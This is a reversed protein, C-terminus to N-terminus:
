KQQNKIKKRNEKARNSYLKGSFSTMLMMLDNVLEETPTYEKDDTIELEVGFKSFFFQILSYQFRTLRDKHEIIIKDVKQDAVLNCLKVFGKRKDNIGSGCDKIIDVIKYGKQVAYETNRQAQREIDGRTKQETTSCRAYVVARIDENRNISETEETKGIMEDLQSKYYRRHGGPTRIAVLVGTYDWRHMTPKSVHLYEMAEKLNM